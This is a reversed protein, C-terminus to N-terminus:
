SFGKLSRGMSMWDEERSVGAESSSASDDSSSKLAVMVGSFMGRLIRSKFREVYVTYLGGDGGGGGGSPRRRDLRLRMLGNCRQFFSRTKYPYGLRVSILGLRSTNLNGGFLILAMMRLVSFGRGFRVYLLRSRDNVRNAFPTRFMVSNHSLGSGSRM